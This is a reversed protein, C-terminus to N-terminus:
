KDNCFCHEIHKISQNFAPLMERQFTMLIYGAVMLGQLLDLSGTSSNNPGIEESGGSRQPARLFKPHGGTKSPYENGDRV